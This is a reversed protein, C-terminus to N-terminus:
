VLDEKARSASTHPEIRLIATLGAMALAVGTALWLVGPYGVRGALATGFSVSLISFLLYLSYQAAYDLAPSEASVRDMMLTSIVTVVPTYCFGFFAVAAIVWGFGAHGSLLLFLSAIGPIQLLAAAIAIQRRSFRRLLLGALIASPIGSLSGVVSVVLGVREISWGASVLIPTILAYALSVAVPYLLVMVLWHLRGPVQWFVRMRALARASQLQAQPWDPERYFLLQLWSILPFVALMLMAGAWGVHPYAILVAGSGILSGLLGGAVQLSNGLGREVQPLARCALADVAIDQTASFLALVLCCAILMHYQQAPDLLALSCQALVIGVQTFLLWSRYRGQFPLRLRDVWHAWVFKLVWVLGLLYVTSVKDLSAGGAMLIAVLGVRFFAMGVNQSVYLSGLLLWFAKAPRTAITDM